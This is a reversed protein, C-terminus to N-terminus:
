YKTEDDSMKPNVPIAIGGARSAALCALLLGYGNPTAIVVRDGPDIRKRIAGAMRAVMEAGQHYTLTLGDGSEEVLPSGGYVAALRELLTGLTLDKARVLEFRDRLSMRPM